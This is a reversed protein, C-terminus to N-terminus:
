IIPFGRTIGDGKYAVRIQAGESPPLSTIVEWHIGDVRVSLSNLQTTDGLLPVHRLQSVGRLLEMDIFAAAPPSIPTVQQDDEVSDILKALSQDVKMIDFIMRNLARTYSICRAGKKHLDPNVEWTDEGKPRILTFGLGVHGTNFKMAVPVLQNSNHKIKNCILKWDRFHSKVASEYVALESKYKRTRLVPLCDAAGEFVEAYEAARYCLTEIKRVQMDDLSSDDWSNFKPFVELFDALSSSFRQSISAVSRFLHVQSDSYEIKIRRGSIAKYFLFDTM